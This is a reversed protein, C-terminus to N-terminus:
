TPACPAADADVPKGHGSIRRLFLYSTSVSEHGPCPLETSYNWTSLSSEICRRISVEVPIVRGSCPEYFRLARVRGDVITLEIPLEGDGWSVPLCDQPDSPRSVPNPFPPLPPAAVCAVPPEFLAPRKVQPLPEEQWMTCAAALVVLLILPPRTYRNTM